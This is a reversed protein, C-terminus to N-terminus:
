IFPTKSPMRAASEPVTVPQTGGTFGCVSDNCLNAFTPPHRPSIKRWNRQTLIRKDSGYGYETPVYFTGGPPWLLPATNLSAGDTLRTVFNGVFGDTDKVTTGTYIKFKPHAEVEAIKNKLFHQVDRHDLTRFVQNSLGGLRDEKEVLHVGFGQDALALSATM